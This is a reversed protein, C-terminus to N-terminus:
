AAAEKPKQLMFEHFARFAADLTGNNPIAVELVQDKGLVLLLRNNSAKMEKVREWPIPEHDSFDIKEASIQKINM